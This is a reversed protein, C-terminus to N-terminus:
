RKMRIMDKLGNFIRQNLITKYHKAEVPTVLRQKRTLAARAFGYLMLAGAIFFPKGFVMRDVVKFTLFVFGGGTAHYIEGHMINTRPLGIGSGEIKLHYFPNDAFHRTEWGRCQAKIEDITDWGKAPIFGGIQDFCKKRVMKCAGAAHYSPMEISAWGHESEELYIGSTIGLKNNNAFETILREFYDPELRLDADLKVIFDYPKDKVTEYGWNFANIVPAGPQRKDDRKTKILSIWPHDKRYREVIEPTSDSSCDDVIVWISPKVTQSVISKITTEIYQQEDKVPSVIIYNHESLHNM